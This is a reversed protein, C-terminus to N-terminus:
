PRYVRRWDGFGKGDSRKRVLRAPFVCGGCHAPYRCERWLSQHSKRRTFACHTMSRWTNEGNRCTGCWVQKKDPLVSIVEHRLRVQVHFRAYFSEPTQLLLDEGDEIVGGVYYPLGCNAYSIHDGREFITIENDESLRRLRAASVGGGAVGGVILIKM